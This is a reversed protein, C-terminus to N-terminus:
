MVHQYCHWLKRLCTRMIKGPLTALLNAPFCVRTQSAALQALPASILCNIRKSKAPFLKLVIRKQSRSWVTLDEESAVTGYWYIIARNGLLFMAHGKQQALPLCVFLIELTFMNYDLLFITAKHWNWAAMQLNCTDTRNLLVTSIQAFLMAQAM